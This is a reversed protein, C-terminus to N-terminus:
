EFSEQGVTMPCRSIIKLYKELIPDETVTGHKLAESLEKKVKACDSDCKIVISKNQIFVRYKGDFFTFIENKVDNLQSILLQTKACDIVISSDFAIRSQLSGLIKSLDSAVASRSPSVSKSLKSAVLELADAIQDPTM